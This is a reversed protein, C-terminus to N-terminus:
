GVPLVELVRFGADTLMRVAEGRGFHHLTLPAGGYAQPMTVDGSRWGKLGLGRFYRNHVHLVLRGGPKLVAAANRLVKLRNEHGRVMGLTSFLCAAYDFPGSVHATLEVLNARLFSSSGLGGPGGERPLFPLSIPSRDKEGRGEWPLPAPPTLNQEEAAKLMEDSLDVGVYGFGRPVFAKALRGTGCGLDILRGPTDFWKACFRVDFAALPSATMMADYGAVMDGSRMYDHLGRDVGPPLQWDPIMDTNYPPKRRPSM